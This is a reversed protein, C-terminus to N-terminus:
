PRDFAFRARQLVNDQRAQQASSPTVCTDDGPFAGRVQLGAPCAGTVTAPIGRGLWRSGESHHQARVSPAVCTYDYPDLERPVQGTMCRNPGHGEKLWAAETPTVPVSRTVRVVASCGQSDSLIVRVRVTGFTASGDTLDQLVDSSPVLDETDAKTALNDMLLELKLKAIGDRQARRILVRHGMSAPIGSGYLGNRSRYEVTLYSFPDSRSLPVRVMLQGGRTPENIPALCYDVSQQQDAGHTVVRTSPLFGLFDMYGAALGAPLQGPGPGERAWRSPTFFVSTMWSMADWPDGYAMVQGQNIGSAIRRYGEHGLGLGHGIEHVASGMDFDQPLVVTSFDGFMDVFPHVILIKLADPTPPNARWAPDGIAANICDGMIRRRIKGQNRQGGTDADNGTVPDIGFWEWRPRMKYWGFTRVSRWDMVGNSWHRYFDAASGTGRSVLKDRVLAASPKFYPMPADVATFGPPVERSLDLTDADGAECMIVVVEPNGRWPRADVVPTWAVLLLGSLAIKALANM